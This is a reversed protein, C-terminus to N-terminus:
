QIYVIATKRFATLLKTAASYFLGLAYIWCLSSHGQQKVPTCPLRVEDTIVLSDSLRTTKGTARKEAPAPRGCAELLALLCVCRGVRLLLVSFRQKRM